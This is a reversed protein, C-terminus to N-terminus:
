MEYVVGNQEVVMPWSNLTAHRHMKPTPNFVLPREMMDLFGIDEESLGVGRSKKLDVKEQEVVRRVINATNEILHEDEVNGTFKDTPGLEYFRGYIKDFGLSDCFVDLLRKPAHSVGLVFCGESRARQIQDLAFTFVLSQERKAVFSVVEDFAEFSVGKIHMRFLKHLAARFAIEDKQGRERGEIVVQLERGASVGFLGEQVCEEILRVLLDSRSVVRDIRFVALSKM